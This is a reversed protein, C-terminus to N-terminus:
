AFILKRIIDLLKVPFQFEFINLELSYKKARAKVLIYYTM